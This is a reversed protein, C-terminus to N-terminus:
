RNTPGPLPTKRQAPREPSSSQKELTGGVRQVEREARDAHLPELRPRCDAVAAAVARKALDACHVFCDKAARETLIPQDVILHEPRDEVDVPQGAAARREPKSGPVGFAPVSLDLSRSAM